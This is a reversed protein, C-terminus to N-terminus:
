AFPSVPTPPAASEDEAAVLRIKFEQIRLLPTPICAVSRRVIIHTPLVVRLVGAIFFLRRAAPSQHEWPVPVVVGYRRTGRRRDDPVATAPSPMTM